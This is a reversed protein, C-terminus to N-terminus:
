DIRKWTESLRDGTSLVGTQTLTDANLTMTFTQDTGTLNVGQANMFDIHETYLGDTFTYTGGGTALAKKKDADYTVWVFHKSSVLKVQKSGDPLRGFKGHDYSVLEWAGELKSGHAQSSSAHTWALTASAIVVIVSALLATQLTKKL